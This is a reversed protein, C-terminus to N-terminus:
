ITWKRFAPRTKIHGLREQGQGVLIFKNKYPILAERTRYDTHLYEKGKPFVTEKVIIQPPEPEEWYYGCVFAIIGVLILVAIFTRLKIMKAGKQNSIIGSM